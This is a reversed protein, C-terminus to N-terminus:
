SGLDVTRQLFTLESSLDDRIGVAIRSYGKRLTLGIDYLFHQQRATEIEAAPIRLTLPEQQQVPSVGGNEDMVVFSVRVRGVYVDNQPALALQGLPLKISMPMLYHRGSTTPQGFVVDAGIPNRETGFYLTALSGDTLRNEATRDRYGNRHRVELGKRKSRSTSTTIAGM